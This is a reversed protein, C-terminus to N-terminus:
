IHQPLLSQHSISTHSISMTTNNMTDATTGKAITIAMTSSKALFLICLLFLALTALGKLEFAM